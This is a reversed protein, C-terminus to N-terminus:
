GSGAPNAKDEETEVHPEAGCPEKGRAGAPAERLLFILALSGLFGDVVAGILFGPPHDASIALYGLQCLCSVYKAFIMIWVLMRNKVDRYALFSILSVTFLLSVSIVAWFPDPPLTLEPGGLGLLGTIRNILRFIGEPYILLFLGFVLYIVAYVAMLVRLENERKRLRDAKPEKDKVM